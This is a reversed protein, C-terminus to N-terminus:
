IKQLNLIIIVTGLAAKFVVDTFETVYACQWFGDRDRARSSSTALLPLLLAGIRRWVNNGHTLFMISDGNTKYHYKCDRYDLLYNNVKKVTNGFCKVSAYINTSM